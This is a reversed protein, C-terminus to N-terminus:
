VILGVDGKGERIIRPAAETLDVVTSPESVLVGGDIILDLGHGFKQDIQVPDSLIEDKSVSATTTIIPNGFGRVIALCIENAPVRIGVTRRRTLMVKPVFRTAQLIFTYPGPILRKMTKYASNSVQAYRSIDKLDSCIFSLPKYHPMKKLRYVKEIADKNFIDCGMGYITDTPYAIIGGKKLVELVRRIMKPPPNQPDIELIM